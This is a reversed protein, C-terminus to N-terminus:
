AALPLPLVCAPSADATASGAPLLLLHLAPPLLLLLLLL